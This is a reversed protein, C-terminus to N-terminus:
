SGPRWALDAVDSPTNTPVCLGDTFAAGDIAELCVRVDTPAAFPSFLNQRVMVARKGDPALTSEGVTICDQDGGAMPTLCASGSGYVYVAQENPLATILYPESVGGLKTLNKGDIDVRYLTGDRVAGWQDRKFDGFVITKGDPSWSPLLDDDPLGAVKRVDSGDAAMTYIDTNTGSGSTNLAYVIRKGDPSWQPEIGDGLTRPSAEDLGSVTIKGTPTYFVQPLSYLLQGGDPSLHSTYQHAHSTFGDAVPTLEGTSLHLKYAPFTSKSQRDSMYLDEGDASWQLRTVVEGSTLQTLKGSDVDLLYADGSGMRDSHYTVSFFAVQGGTRPASKVASRLTHVFADAVNVAVFALIILGVVSWIIIRWKNQGM